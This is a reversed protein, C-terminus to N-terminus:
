WSRNERERERERVRVILRVRAVGEGHVAALASRREGDGSTKLDAGRDDRRVVFAM